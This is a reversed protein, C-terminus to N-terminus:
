SFRVETNAIKVMKEKLVTNSNAPQRTKYVLFVTREIQGYKKKTM